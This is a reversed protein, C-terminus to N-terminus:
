GRYGKVLARATSDIGQEFFNWEVADDKHYDMGILGAHFVIHLLEHVLITEQDDDGDGIAEENLIKITAVKKSMMPRCVGLFEDSKDIQKVIQLDIEWDSVRLREQWTKCLKKLNSSTMM